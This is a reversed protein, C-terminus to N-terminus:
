VQKRIGGETHCLAPEVSLLTLSTGVLCTRSSQSVKLGRASSGSLLCPGWGRAGPPGPRVARPERLHANQAGAPMETGGGRFSSAVAWLHPLPPPGCTAQVPQALGEVWPNRERDKPVDPFCVTILFYCMASVVWWCGRIWSAPAKGKWTITAQTCQMDLTIQNM